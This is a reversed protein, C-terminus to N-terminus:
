CLYSYRAYDLLLAFSFGVRRTLLGNKTALNKLFNQPTSLVLAPTNTIIVPPIELATIPKLWVQQIM